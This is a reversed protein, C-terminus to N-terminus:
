KVKKKEALAEEFLELQEQMVQMQPHLQVARRQVQVANEYDGAAYYCRGLTDLYSPTNPRLQLSKQSYRIARQYDGETNSILWAWHNYLNANEGGQKIATDLSKRAKSIHALTEKRHQENDKQHQENSKKWRYLAILVDADTPDRRLAQTLHKKQKDYQGQSGYHCALFFDRQQYMTNLLYQRHEDENIRQRIAPDAEVADCVEGLLQAAQKDEGRDHLRLSAM